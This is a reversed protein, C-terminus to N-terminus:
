RDKGGSMIGESCVERKGGLKGRSVGRVWFDTELGSRERDEVTKGGILM